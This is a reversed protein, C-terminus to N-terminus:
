LNRLSALGDKANEMWNRCYRLKLDDVWGRDEENDPRLGFITKSQLRGALRPDSEIWRIVMISQRHAGKNQLTRALYVAGNFIEQPMDSVFSSGLERYLQEYHPELFEGLVQLRETIYAENGTRRYLEAVWVNKLGYWYANSRKIRLEQEMDYSHFLGEVEEDPLFSLDTKEIMEDGGLM